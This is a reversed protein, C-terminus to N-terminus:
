RVEYGRRGWAGDGRLEDQVCGGFGEPEGDFLEAARAASTGEDNGALDGHVEEAVQQWVEAERDDGLVETVSVVRRHHVGFALDFGEHLVLGLDEFLHVVEDGLEAVCRWAVLSRGSHSCGHFGQAPVMYNRHVRCRRDVGLAFLVVTM